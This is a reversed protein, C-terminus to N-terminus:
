LRKFRRVLLWAVAILLAAAGVSTLLTPVGLKIPFTDSVVWRRATALSLTNYAMHLVVPALVSGAHHRAVGCALALAGASVVRVIGLGGAMDAHLWTFITSTVLTAIGGALLWGGAARLARLVIGESLPLALSVPDRGRRSPSLRDVLRQVASWAAGRFLLEESLPSVIAAWLLALLVPSRTISKGFDGSSKQALERGGRALEDLLTPLAIAIALYSAAV